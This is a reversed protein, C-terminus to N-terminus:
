WSRTGQLADINGTLTMQLETEATWFDNLKEIYDNVSAVQARADSLLQFPSVLMGNYRLQNEALIKQRLPVIEDHVHKAMEYNARYRRYAARVESQANVAMQATRNVAQMYTAEARAVKADGWDFLPLEFSVAVGKKYPAERPGELVRAPGIELVNIMRTTKTLGLRKALVETELKMLQLDLRQEFATQEFPRLEALTKPLDPLRQQLKFEPAALALLRALVEFSIDQQIKAQAVGLVADAYYSQERVQELASWNGAQRMRQALEASAEASEEVQQSYRVHENAAVANFYALRTQQALRLVQAAALQQTQEFRQREIDLMKPMTILSFINFALIKEIKYDGNNRTYLMSFKPNPLRGAQVLDAESIGLAYFAAQLDKNNLLAIQVAADVDLTQKLLKAVRQAIQSQEAATKQWVIEQPLQTQTAQKVSGFGGDPSFSSCGGIALGLGLVTLKFFQMYGGVDIM